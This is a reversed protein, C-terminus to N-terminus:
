PLEEGSGGLIEIVQEGHASEVTRDVVAVGIVNQPVDHAEGRLVFQGGLNNKMADHGREHADGPPWSVCCNM